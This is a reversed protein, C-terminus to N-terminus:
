GEIAFRLWIEACRVGTSRRVQAGSPLRLARDASEPRRDPHPEGAFVVVQLNDEEFDAALRVTGALGADLGCLVDELAEHVAVGIRNAAADTAGMSAAFARVADALQAPDADEAAGQMAIM